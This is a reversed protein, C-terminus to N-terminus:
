TAHGGDRRLLTRALLPLICCATLPLVRELGVAPLPVESPGGLRSRRWRAHPTRAFSRAEHDLLMVGRGEVVFNRNSAPPTRFDHATGLPGEVSGLSLRSAMGVSSWGSAYALNSPTM